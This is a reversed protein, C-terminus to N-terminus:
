LLVRMLLALGLAFGGIYTGLAGIGRLPHPPGKFDGSMLMGAGHLVRCITVIVVVWTIWGSAGALAFYLFLAVFLPTYEAANGHARVARNLAGSPDDGVGISTKTRGRLISVNLALAFYFLVLIASCVLYAKMHM